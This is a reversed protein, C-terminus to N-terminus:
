VQQVKEYLESFTKERKSVGVSIQIWSEEVADLVQFRETKQM